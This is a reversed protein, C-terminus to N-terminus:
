IEPTRFDDTKNIYKKVNEILIQFYNIIQVNEFKM